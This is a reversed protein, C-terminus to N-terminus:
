SQSYIAENRVMSNKCYAIAGQIANQSEETSSSSSSSSVTSTSIGARAQFGGGSVGGSTRPLVGSHNPSSLTSSPCSSVYSRRMRPHRLNGSFSNYFGGNGSSSRIKEEERENRSRELFASLPVPLFNTVSISEVKNHHKQHHSLKEYLPKIKKFYRRIAEKASGSVTKKVAGHDPEPPPPPPTTSVTKSVAPEKKFVSSFRPLSFHYRSKKIMLSKSRRSTFYHHRHEREEEEEAAASSHRSFDFGGDTTITTTTTTTTASSDSGSSDRSSSSSSDSTLLLTRVMHLRPSLQLPLLQGKYFLDDAVSSASVALKQPSRSTKFEFDSPSSSSSSYSHSPSSPLTQSKPSKERKKGM